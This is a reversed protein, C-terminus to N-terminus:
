LKITLTEDGEELHAGEVPKGEKLAKLIERTKPKEIVELYEKPLLIETDIVAKKVGKRRSIKIDGVQRSKEGSEQLAHLCIEKLKTKKYEQLKKKEQLQSIRNKMYDIDKDLEEIESLCIELKESELDDIAQLLMECQEPDNEDRLMDRLNAQELELEYTNMKFYDGKGEVKGTIASHKANMNKQLGKSKRPVCPKKKKINRVNVTVVLM